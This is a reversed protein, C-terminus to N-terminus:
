LVAPEFDRQGRPTIMLDFLHTGGHAMRHEPQDSRSMATHGDLAKCRSFIPGQEGPLHSAQAAEQLIRMFLFLFKLILFSNGIMTVIPKNVPQADEGGIGAGSSFGGWAERTGSVGCCGMGSIRGPGGDGATGSVGDMGGRGVSLWRKGCIARLLAAVRASAAARM